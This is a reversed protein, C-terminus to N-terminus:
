VPLVDFSAPMAPLRAAFVEQLVRGVAQANNFKFRQILRDVPFGYVFAARAANQPPPHKLCEGCTNDDAPLPIACTRCARKLEPLDRECPACLDLRRRSPKRCLLCNGPLISFSLDLAM